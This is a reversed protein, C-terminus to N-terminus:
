CVRVPGIWICCGWGAVEAVEEAAEAAEAAEDAAAEDAAAEDEAAAEARHRCRIPSAFSVASM